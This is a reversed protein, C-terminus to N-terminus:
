HLHKPAPGPDLRLAARYKQLATDYAWQLAHVRQQFQDFEERRLLRSEELLRLASEKGSAEDAARQTAAITALHAARLACRARRADAVALLAAVVGGVSLLIALGVALAIM